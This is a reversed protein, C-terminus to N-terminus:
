WDVKEWNGTDMMMKFAIESVQGLEENLNRLRQEAMRIEGQIRQLEGAIVQPHRIIGSRDTMTKTVCM